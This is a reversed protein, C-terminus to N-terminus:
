FESSSSTSSSSSEEHDVVPYESSSSESESEESFNMPSFRPSNSSERPFEIEDEILNIVRNNVRYVEQSALESKLSKVEKLLMNMHEQMKAANHRTTEERIFKEACGV